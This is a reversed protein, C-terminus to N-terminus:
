SLNKITKILQKLSLKSAVYQPNTASGNLLMRGSIHYFWTAGPDLKKVAAYLKSLSKKNDPRLKIRVAGSYKYKQVTLDYGKKQGLRCVESNDTEIALTNGWRSEFFLAEKFEQEASVKKSLESLAADLLHNGIHILHHDDNLSSKLGDILGAPLLDYIDSDPNPYYIEKFHDADCVYDLLRSLPEQLKPKILKERKLFDYVKQAACIPEKSQHHDFRGFGTDVHIVSEDSDVPKNKYTTGAPVFAVTSEDWEPLYKQLLWISAIADLDPSIHTIITKGSM